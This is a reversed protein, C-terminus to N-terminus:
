HGIFDNAEFSSGRIVTVPVQRYISSDRSEGKVHTLIGPKMGAVLEFQVAVVQADVDLKGIRDLPEPEFVGFDSSNHQDAAFVANERRARVNIHERARSM